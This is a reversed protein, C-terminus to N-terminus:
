WHIHSLIEATQAAALAAGATAAVLKAILEARKWGRGM